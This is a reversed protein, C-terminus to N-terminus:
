FAKYILGKVEGIGDLSHLNPNNYCDFWYGIIQPAGELTILQNNSCDFCGNIIQPAGKLSNLKNGSCYFDEGVTQPAGKLSTLKNWYCNFSGGVEQPAGELSTLQNNSCNFDGGVKKPAGELSTLQNDGCDFKGGVKQPAGKLSTLQNKYCYFDEGVKHPAGKLSTLQNNDCYFGEGVIQPAGELSTLNNHICWFRGGVKQPAGELSTLKNGSCNFEGNVETPAGKISKLGLYSCNFRGIIKGFNITFGDKDESVFNKLSDTDLDGDYDYRNTQPNFTFTSKIRNIEKEKYNKREKEIAEIIYSPLPTRIENDAGNYLSTVEWTRKFVGIAIKRNNKLRNNNRFWFLFHINLSYDNWYRDSTQMSICWKAGPKMDGHESDFYGFAHAEDTFEERGCWSPIKTWMEPEVNNSALIRSANYTYVSYLVEDSSEYLISYDQGEVLGRPDLDNIYLPRLVELFDEYTLSNNKNWDIKNDYSPHKGLLEIIEQKQEDTLNPNRRILHGKKEYLRKMNPNTLISRRKTAGEQPLSKNFPIM